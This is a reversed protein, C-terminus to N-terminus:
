ILLLLVPAEWFIFTMCINRLDTRGAHQMSNLLLFIRSMQLSLTHGFKTENDTASDHSVHVSM